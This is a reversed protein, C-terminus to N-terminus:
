WRPLVRKWTPDVHKRMEAEDDRKRYSLKNYRDKGRKLQDYDLTVGLGPRDTIEVCGNKIPVRGGAVVEDIASQWPYHTDCAYTLHPTAAAVHAMAMLSIGLHSNSHMSLGINFTEALKALHQVQRMGGWYHHDCLIIQVADHKVSSPIDGFSTVAVNTALPVDIGLELLKKRVAGMGEIGATPDELYGGGSLERALAKGVKVSTEVTWASNPDIRLPVNPGLEQFMLKVTEIELEPELVGAKFKVSGFGYQAIMKKVQQVLAEPTLAEGYEDARKDAGEGGGGAHKYFPYASFPVKERVRGGILDCVPIGISKGILDLCAVEIAAYTRSTEDLPNEGPVLYTQSRDQGNHKSKMEPNILGTLRFPNNGIVKERIAQLAGAPAEGGYTENIGIIGDESELEIITRLAYPAHLGYSSRLPPDAIAISHIRLDKIKIAM